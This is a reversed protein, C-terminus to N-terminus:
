KELGMELRCILKYDGKWRDKKTNRQVHLIDVLIWLGSEACAETKYCIHLRVKHVARRYMASKTELSLKFKLMSQMSINLINYWWRGDSQDKPITQQNTYIVHYWLRLDRTRTTGGCKRRTMTDSGLDPTLPLTTQKCMWFSHRLYILCGSEMLDIKQFLQNTPTDLLICQWELTNMSLIRSQLM